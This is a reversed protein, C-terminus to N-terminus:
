QGVAEHWATRLLQALSRAAGETPRSITVPIPNGKLAVEISRRRGVIDAVENWGIEYSAVLGYSEAMAAFLYHPNLSNPHRRRQDVAADLALLELRWLM